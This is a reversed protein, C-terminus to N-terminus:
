RNALTDEEEKVRDDGDGDDNNNGRFNFDEFGPKQLGLIGTVTMYSSKRTAKKEIDFFHNNERKGTKPTGMGTISTRTATANTIPKVHKTTQSGDRTTTILSRGPDAKSQGPYM